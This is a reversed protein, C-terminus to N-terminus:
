NLVKPLEPFPPGLGDLYRCSDAMYGQNQCALGNIAMPVKSCSPPSTLWECFASSVVLQTVNTQKQAAPYAGAVSVEGVGWLEAEIWTKAM